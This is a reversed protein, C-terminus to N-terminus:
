QALRPRGIRQEGMAMTMFKSNVGSTSTAMHISGTTIVPTFPQILGNLNTVEALM